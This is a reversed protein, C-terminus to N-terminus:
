NATKNMIAKIFDHEISELFSWLGFYSTTCLVFSLFRKNLVYRGLKTLLANPSSWSTRPEVGVPFVKQYFKNREEGDISTYNYWFKASYSSNYFFEFTYLLFNAWWRFPMCTLCYLKLVCDDSLFVVSRPTNVKSERLFNGFTGPILPVVTYWLTLCLTVLCNMTLFAGM